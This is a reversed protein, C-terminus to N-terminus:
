TVPTKLKLRLKKHKNNRRLRCIPTYRLDKFYKTVINLHPLYRLRLEVVTYFQITKTFFFSFFSPRTKTNPYGLFLSSLPRPFLVFSQSAM